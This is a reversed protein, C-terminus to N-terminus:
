IFADLVDDIDDAINFWLKYYFRDILKDHIFSLYIPANEAVKFRTEIIERSKIDDRCSFQSPDEMKKDTLKNLHDNSIIHDEDLYRECIFKGDNKILKMNKYEFITHNVTKNNLHIFKSMANLFIDESVYINFVSFLNHVVGEEQKFKFMEFLTFSSKGHTGTNLLMKKLKENIKLVEENKFITFVAPDM